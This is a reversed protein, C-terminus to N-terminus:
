LPGSAASLLRRPFLRRLSFINVADCKQIVDHIRQTQLRHKVHSGAGRLPRRRYAFHRPRRRKFGCSLSARNNRVCINHLTFLLQLGRVSAPEPDKSFHLPGQSSILLLCVCSPLSSLVHCTSRNAPPDTQFSKLFGGSGLFMEESAPADTLLLELSRM